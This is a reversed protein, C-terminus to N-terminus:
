DKASAAVRPGASGSALVDLVRRADTSGNHELAEVARVASCRDFERIAISSRRL